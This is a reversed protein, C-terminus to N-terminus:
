EDPCNGSIVTPVEFQGGGPVQFITEIAVAPPWGFAAPVSVINSIEAEISCFSDAADALKDDDSERLTELVAFLYEEVFVQHLCINDPLFCPEIDPVGIGIDPVAGDAGVEFGLIIPKVAVGYNRVELGTSIVPLTRIAEWFVGNNFVGVGTQTQSFRAVHGETVDKGIAEWLTSGIAKSLLEEQETTAGMAPIGGAFVSAEVMDKRSTSLTPVAPHTVCEAIPLFGFATGVIAPDLICASKAGDGHLDM